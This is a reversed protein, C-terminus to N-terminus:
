KMMELARFAIQRPDISDWPPSRDNMIRRLAELATERDRFLKSLIHQQVKFVLEPHSGYHFVDFEIDELPENNEGRGKFETM